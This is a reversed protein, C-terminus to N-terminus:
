AEADLAVTIIETSAAPDYGGHKWDGYRHAVALGAADLFADLRAHDLFRLISRSEKPAPWAACTYTQTFEVLDARVGVLKTVERVPEGQPTHAVGADGDWREWARAAPNRTEFVFRGGPALVARVAGLFAALEEDGTLVQFAHGTMVVLDFVGLGAADDPSAPAAAPATLTGHVWAVDARAARAVALMGAGPDLGVLRGTHGAERAARLLEGTGCGVDLVRVAGMVLPLYFSFDARGRCFEDYLAAIEPDTYQADPEAM